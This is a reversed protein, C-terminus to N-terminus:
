DPVDAKLDQIRQTLATRKSVLINKREDLDAIGKVIEDKESQLVTIKAKIAQKSENTIAM